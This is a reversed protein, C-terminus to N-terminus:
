RFSRIARELQREMRNKSVLDTAAQSAGQLNMRGLDGFNTDLAFDIGTAPPSVLAPAELSPYLGVRDGPDTFLGNGDTDEFAFMFYQGAQLNDVSYANSSGALQVETGGSLTEDCPAADNGTYFCAFVVGTNVPVGGAPPPYLVAGSISGGETPEPNVPDTPTSGDDYVQLTFDVGSAPPTVPAPNVGDTSYFGLYDGNTLSESADVDKIAVVVHPESQLGTLSYAGTTDVTTTSALACEPDSEACAIVVTGSVEGGAPAMVTGSIGDGPDPTTPLGPVTPIGPNTPTGPDTPQGPVTPTGPDTPPPDIPSDNGCGALVLLLGGTLVLRTLKM